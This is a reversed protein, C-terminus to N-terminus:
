RSNEYSDPQWRVLRAMVRDVLWWLGVAM